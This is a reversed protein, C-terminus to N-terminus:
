VLSCCRDQLPSSSLQCNGCPGGLFFHYLWTPIFGRLLLCRVASVKAGDGAVLGGVTRLAQGLPLEPPPAVIARPHNRRRVGSGGYAASGAADTGLRSGWPRGGGRGTGGVQSGKERGERGARASAARTARGQAGGGHRSNSHSHSAGRPWVENDARSSKADLSDSEKWFLASSERASLARGEGTGSCNHDHRQDHDHDHDHDAQPPGGAPHQPLRWGSRHRRHRMSSPTLGISEQQQRGRARASAAMASYTRAPASEGLGQQQQLLMDEEEDAIFMNPPPPVGGHQGSSTCDGSRGANGSYSDLDSLRMANPQLGDGDEELVTSSDKSAQLWRPDPRRQSIPAPSPPPSRPIPSNLIDDDSDDHHHNESLRGALCPAGESNANGGGDASTKEELHQTHKDDGHRAAGPAATVTTATARSLFQNLYSTPQAETTAEESRGDPRFAPM